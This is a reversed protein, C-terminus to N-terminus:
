AAARIDRHITSYPWDEPRDVLGHKVPNFHCYNVHAVFDADDRIAHEWFRRQWIGREGKRRRSQNAFGTASCHRLFLGKVKKWRTSFDDDGPPLTWVAHIHDPLVVMADCHLPHQATVSAYVSRLLGIEDTLTTASRDALTVTFFYTGGPVYLRRYRPMRGGNRASTLFGHLTPSFGGPMVTRCAHTKM